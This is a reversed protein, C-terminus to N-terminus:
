EAARAPQGLSKRSRLWETAWASDADELAPAPPASYDISLDYRARDYVVSLAAGLDLPVDSDEPRLPVVVVPLPDSLNVPWVELQRRNSARSLSVLYTTARLGQTETARTGHRLLDIELLNARSRLYVNRKRVYQGLGPMEKNAPSLVEIATILDNGVRDRIEVAVLEVKHLGPTFMIVPPTVARRNIAGSTVYAVAAERVMTSSAGQSKAISVDVDPYVGGVSSTSREGAVLHYTMLRAVYNPAVQPALRDRIENALAHHVDQFLHGELYPDMGPFPSPM